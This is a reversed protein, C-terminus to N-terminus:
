VHATVDSKIHAFKYAKTRVPCGNRSSFSRTHGIGGDVLQESAAKSMSKRQGTRISRTIHTIHAIELRIYVFQTLMERHWSVPLGLKFSSTTYLTRLSEATFVLTLYLYWITTMLCHSEALRCSKGSEQWFGTQLIEAFSAHLHVQNANMEWLSRTKHM